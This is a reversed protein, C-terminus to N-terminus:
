NKMDCDVIEDYLRQKNKLKGDESLSLGKEKAIERLEDVKYKSIPNMHTTFIRKVDKKRLDNTIPIEGTERLVWTESYEKCMYRGKEYQIYVKPYEKMTTEYICNNVVLHFHQQYYENLYLLSAITTKKDSSLQLSRQIVKKGLVKPNFAYKEYSEKSDEDIKTCLELVKQKVYLSREKLSIGQYIPDYEAVICHCLTDHTESISSQTSSQASSQAVVDHQRKGELFESTKINKTFSFEQHSTIERLAEMRYM